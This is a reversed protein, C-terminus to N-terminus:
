RLASVSPEDQGGGSNMGAEAETRLRSADSHAGSADLVKSYALKAAFYRPSQNGFSAELLNMGHLTAERATTTDGVQLYAGGLLVYLWGVEAPQDQHSQQRIALARQYGSIAARPDHDMEAIRAQTSTLAALEDSNFNEARQSESFARGIWKHAERSHQQDAAMAALDNWIVAASAHDNQKEFMRGAKLLAHKATDPQGTEAYLTALTALATAYEAQHRGDRNMIALAKEYSATAKTFDGRQQYAHGLYTLATAQDARTLNGSALLTTAAQIVEAPQGQHNLEALSLLASHHEQASALLRSTAVTVLVCILIRKM